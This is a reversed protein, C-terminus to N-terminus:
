KKKNINVICNLTTVNAAAIICRQTATQREGFENWSFINLSLVSTGMILTRLDAAARVRQVRLLQLTSCHVLFIENMFNVIENRVVSQVSLHTQAANNDNNKNHMPANEQWTFHSQHGRILARM